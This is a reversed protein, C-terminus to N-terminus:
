GDTLGEGDFRYGIRGDSPALGLKLTRGANYAPMVVITKRPRGAQQTQKEMGAQPLMM